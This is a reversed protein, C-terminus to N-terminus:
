ATSPNLLIQFIKKLSLPKQSMTIRRSKVVKIASDIDENSFANELSPIQVVYYTKIKLLNIFQKLLKKIVKKM